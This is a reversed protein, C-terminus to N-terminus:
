QNIIDDVQEDVLQFAHLYFTRDREPMEVRSLEECLVFIMEKILVSFYPFKALFPLGSRLLSLAYSAEKRPYPEDEIRLSVLLAPYTVPDFISM